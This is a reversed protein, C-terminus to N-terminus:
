LGPRGIRKKTEQVCRFAQTKVRRRGASVAAWKECVLKAPTCSKKWDRVLLCNKAWCAAKSKGIHGIVRPPNKKNVAQSRSMHGRGAESKGM